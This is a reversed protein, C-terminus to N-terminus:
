RWRARLRQALVLIVSSVAFFAIWQVSMAADIAELLAAVLAGAAWPAVFLGGTVAEGLLLVVATTVWAWFVVSV